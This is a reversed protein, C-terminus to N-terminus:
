VEIKGNSSLAKKPEKINAKKLINKATLDCIARCINRKL